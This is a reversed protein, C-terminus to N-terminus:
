FIWPISPATSEKTSYRKSSAATLQRSAMGSESAVSPPEQFPGLSEFDDKHEIIEEAMLWTIGGDASDGAAGHSNPLALLLALCVLPIADFCTKKEHHIS